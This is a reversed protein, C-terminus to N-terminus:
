HEPKDEEPFNVDIDYGENALMYSLSAYSSRYQILQEEQIVLQNNAYVLISLDKDKL